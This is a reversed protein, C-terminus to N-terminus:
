NLVYKGYLYFIFGPPKQYGGKKNQLVIGDFLKLDLCDSFELKNWDSEEDEKYEIISNDGHICLDIDEAYFYITRLFLPNKRPKFRGTTMIIKIFGSRPMGNSVYLDHNYDIDELQEKFTSICVPTINIFTMVSLLVLIKILMNKEYKM